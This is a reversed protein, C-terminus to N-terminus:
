KTPVAPMPGTLLAPDIRERFWNIRWDLHSGTSRGTSGVRGITQGRAVKAGEDVLLESLHLFASTLGHGHDLILTGGTFYFDDEALTVIGDAPARVPTGEAAAIDIGFHPQRPKGNLIRQSGYVGTVTGIVPWEFGTLFDTEARDNLRAQWIMENERRIRALVEEPPSVMSEPLGDIRQVQYERSAVELTKEARTANPYVIELIAKGAADRGFGLVFRGEPSVRIDQGDLRVTSGPDVTGLLLGGQVPEGELQLTQAAAGAVPPLFLLFLLVVLRPTM